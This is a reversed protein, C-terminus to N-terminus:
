STVHGLADRRSVQLRLYLTEMIVSLRYAAIHTCTFFWIMTDVGELRVKELNLNKM